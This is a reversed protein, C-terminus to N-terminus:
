NEDVIPNRLVGIGSIDIEIVDGAKMWVPPTRGAGVGGTTGTAVVTGPVLPAIKSLYEILAPIDFLLDDTTAEQMVTGNLRTTLSLAAPDPVEDSTVMWPGMAGSHWFTKGPMFQTTHRQYDRISGDNFCAYGAIYDLANKAAIHRGARGIVFALEGEFDFHESVKPRVMPQGHGVQSDAYRAFLMPHAPAERGMEEIHSKYNLGVCIVKPPVVITPLFEIEAISVEAAKNAGARVVEDLGGDAIAAALSPWRDSFTRGVDAVGDEIAVGYTDHGNHRYSLLKM